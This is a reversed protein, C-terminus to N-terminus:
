NVWFGDIAGITWLYGSIARLYDAKAEILKAKAEAAYRERINLYLLSSEGAVYKKREGEQMIWAYHNERLSAAVRKQAAQIASIADDIEALIKRETELKKFKISEVKVRALEESARARRFFLPQSFKIGFLYDNIKSGDLKYFLTQFEADLKPLMTQKALNVEIGASKLKVHMQRLEPRKELAKYKQRMVLSDSLVPLEPLEPASFNLEQPTRDKHWLYTSLKISAKEFKRNAKFLDGRRKEIELLAEVTDIAAAEGKRARTAIVQSRETALDFMNEAVQLAAHAEVWDWYANSAELLLNNNTEKQSAEAVKPELKAKALQARRKDLSLGQLIPVQIGFGAEGEETTENEPDIGDGLGRRYKAIFSPGFNTPLPVEVNTNLYNVKAKGDISKYKYSTKIVPDFNSKADLIDANALDKELTAAIAKPHAESVISLFAHLSLTDDAVQASATPSFSVCFVTIFFSVPKFRQLKKLLM